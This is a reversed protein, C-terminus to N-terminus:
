QLRAEGNSQLMSAVAGELWRGRAGGRMEAALITGTPRLM